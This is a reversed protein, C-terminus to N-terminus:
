TQNAPQSHYRKPKATVQAGAKSSAHLRYSFKCPVRISSATAAKKEAKKEVKKEAKTEVKTEVKKQLSCVREKWDHVTVSGM